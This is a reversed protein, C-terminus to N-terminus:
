LDSISGPLQRPQLGCERSAPDEWWWRGARSDQGPQVARTCPACGISPYGADHLPNYPLKEQRIYSWVDAHSWDLLPNVKQLRYRGDWELAKVEAREASQDHRVGSVWANYGFIARQFPEVKRIHCCAQRQALGNYFGNIGHDAVYNQVRQAEPFVVRIRRRYRHEVRELLELTSEHLRGTDVTFIDVQPVHRFILDILVSSEAGLSSAYVVRGFQRVAARLQEISGAVKAPLDASVAPTIVVPAAAAAIQM